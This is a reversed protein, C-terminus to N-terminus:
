YLLIGLREIRFVDITARARELLREPKEGSLFWDKWEPTGVVRPMEDWRPKFDKPSSDRLACAAHVFLDVPRARRTDTVVIQVGYCVQGKYRDSTPRFTVPKFRLGPLRQRSLTRAVTINRMWPAGFVEFPTHTGRGVSVNTSEFAGIGSYLLAARPTPINPSPALFPMETQPWLMSRRWGDMPVVLLRANLAAKENHWRALEGLTLGHRTPVSFYATFHRVESSLVVGEMAMGGLPNPRDLLVFEKGGRATEELAYGMSTAYTYFRTGIDPLDCVLVDIDKMQEATPRKTEGYLSHVPIETGPYVSDPVPAGHEMKGTLGHEPTFVAVLTVGPAEMLLDVLPRGDRDQATHNVLVGVRKGLLPGFNQEKLVDLGTKVEARLVGALLFVTLAAIRRNM